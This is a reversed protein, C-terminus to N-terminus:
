DACSHFSLFTQTPGSFLIGEEQGKSFTNQQQKPAWVNIKKGCAPSAPLPKPPFCFTSSYSVAYM